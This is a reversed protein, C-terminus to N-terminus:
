RGSNNKVRGAKPQMIWLAKLIPMSALFLANVLQIERQKPADCVILANQKLAETSIVM